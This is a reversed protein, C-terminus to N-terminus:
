FLISCCICVYRCRVLGSISQVRNLKPHQIIAKIMRFESGLNRIKIGATRHIELWRPRVIAIPFGWLDISTRIPIRDLDPPNEM